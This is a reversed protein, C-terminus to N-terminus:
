FFFNVIYYARTHLVYIQFEARILDNRGFAKVEDLTDTLTAGSDDLYSCSTFGPNAGTLVASEVSALTVQAITSTPSLEYDHSVTYGDDDSSYAWHHEYHMGNM